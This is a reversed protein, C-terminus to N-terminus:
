RSNGSAWRSYPTSAGAVKKEPASTSAAASRPRCTRLHRSVLAPEVGTADAHGDDTVDLDLKDANARVSSTRAQPTPTACCM